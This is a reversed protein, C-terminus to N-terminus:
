DVQSWIHAWQPVIYDSFDYGGFAKGIIGEQGVHFVDKQQYPNWAVAPFQEKTMTTTDLEVRIFNKNIVKQAKEKLWVAMALIDAEADELCDFDKWRQVGKFNTSYKYGANVIRYQGIWVQRKQQLRTIWANGNFFTKFKADEKGVVQIDDMMRREYIAIVERAEGPSIPFPISFKEIGATDIDAWGLLIIKGDRSIHLRSNIAIFNDANRAGGMIIFPDADQHEIHKLGALIQQMRPPITRM